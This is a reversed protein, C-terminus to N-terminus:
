VKPKTEEQKEKLRAEHAKKQDLVTRLRSLDASTIILTKTEAAVPVNDKNLKTEVYKMEVRPPKVKKTSANREETQKIFLEIEAASLSEAANTFMMSRYMIRRRIDRNVKVNRERFPKGSLDVVAKKKKRTKSKPM